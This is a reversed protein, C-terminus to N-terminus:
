YNPPQDIVMNAARQGNYQWWILGGVAGLASMLLLDLLSFCCTSSVISIWYTESFDPPTPLGFQQLFDAAGEAGMMTSNITGGIIQGLLAGAGGIAGALAGSKLASGNDTPKDFNGALYGAIGGLLPVCCVTCLPSLLSLGIALVLTIAGLILGSKVM